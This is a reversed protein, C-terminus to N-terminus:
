TPQDGPYDTYGYTLNRPEKRLSDYDLNMTRQTSYGFQDGSYSSNGYTPPQGLSLESSQYPQQGVAVQQGAAAQAMQTSQDEAYDTHGHRPNLPYHSSRSYQQGVATQGSQTLRDGIYGAHSSSFDLVHGRPQYYEQDAAVQAIGYHMQDGPNSPNSYTHLQGLSLESSQYPQQGANPYTTNHGHDRFYGPNTHIHSRSPEPPDGFQYPQYRAGPQAAPTFNWDTIGQTPPAPEQSPVMGGAVGTETAGYNWSYEALAEQVVPDDSYQRKLHLAVVIARNLAYSITSRRAPVQKSVPKASTRKATDRATEFAKRMPHSWFWPHIDSMWISAPNKGPQLAVSYRWWYSGDDAQSPPADVGSPLTLPRHKKATPSSKGWNYLLMAEKIAAWAGFRAADVRAGVVDRDFAKRELERQTTDIKSQRTKREFEAMDATWFIPPIEQIWM